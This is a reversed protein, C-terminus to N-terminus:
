RAVLVSEKSVKSLPGYNRHGYHKKFAAEKGSRLSLVEKSCFVYESVDQLLV